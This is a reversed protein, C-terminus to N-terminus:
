MELKYQNKDDEEKALQEATKKPKAKAKAKTEKKPKEAKTM